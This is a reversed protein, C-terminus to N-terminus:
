SPDRNFEGPSYELRYKTEFESCLPFGGSPSSPSVATKKLEQSILLTCFRSSEPLPPPQDPKIFHCSMYGSKPVLTDSSAHCVCCFSFLFSYAEATTKTLAMHPKNSDGATRSDKTNLVSTWSRNWFRWCRHVGSGSRGQLMGGRVTAVSRSVHSVCARDGRGTWGYRDAWRKQGAMQSKSKKISFVIPELGMEPTLRTKVSLCARKQEYSTRCIWKKAPKAYNAGWPVKMHFLYHVTSKLPHGHGIKLIGHKWGPGNLYNMKLVRLM